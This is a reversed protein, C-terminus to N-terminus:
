DVNGVKHFFFGSPFIVEDAAAVSMLAVMQAEGRM